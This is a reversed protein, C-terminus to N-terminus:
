TLQELLDYAKDFDIHKSQAIEDALIRKATRLMTKEMYNLDHKKKMQTLNYILELYDEVTGSKIKLTYFENREKYNIKSLEETKNVYETAHDLKYDLYSPDSILRMHSKEVRSFPLLVQMKNNTLYIRYYKELKGRFEKEEIYEIIGVGQNPYVVKDGEKFQLM